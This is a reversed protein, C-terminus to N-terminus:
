AMRNEDKPGLSHDDRPPKGTVAREEKRNM